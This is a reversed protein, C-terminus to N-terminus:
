GSAMPRTPLDTAVAVKTKGGGGPNITYIGSDNLVTYAIKGNPGPFTARCPAAPGGDDVFGSGSAGGGSVGAGGNKTKALKKGRTAYQPSVAKLGAATNCLASASCCRRIPSSDNVFM